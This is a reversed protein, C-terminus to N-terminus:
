GSACMAADPLNGEVNKLIGRKKRAAEKVKNIIASLKYLYIKSKDERKGIIGFSTDIIKIYPHAQLAMMEIWLKYTHLATTTVRENGDVDKIIFETAPANNRVINKSVYYNKEFCCENAVLIIIRAGFTTVVMSAVTNLVNGGCPVTRGLRNRVKRHFKKDMGYYPFYLIKGKWADLVRPSLINSTILTLDKSDVDLHEYIDNDDSDLAVVFDPVVDHKLLYKLSSNVCFITFDKKTCNLLYKVDRKLCPSAGVLVVTKDNPPLLFDKMTWISNYSHLRPINKETNEDWETTPMIAVENFGEVASRWQAKLM